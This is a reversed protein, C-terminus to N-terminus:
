ISCGVVSFIGFFCFVNFLGLGVIFLLSITEVTNAIAARFPQTLAHHFLFLVGFLTMILLRLLPDSVFAKLVTLILRRDM